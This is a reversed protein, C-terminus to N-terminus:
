KRIVDLVTKQKRGRLICGSLSTLSQFCDDANASVNWNRWENLRRFDDSGTLYMLDFLPCCQM